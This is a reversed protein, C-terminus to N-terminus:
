NSEQAFHLIIWNFRKLHQELLIEITFVLPFFLRCFCCCFLILNCVLCDTNSEWYSGIMLSLSRKRKDRKERTKSTSKKENTFSIWHMVSRMHGYRCHKTKNNFDNNSCREGLSFVRRHIWLGCECSCVAIVCYWFKMYDFVWSCAARLLSPCFFIANHFGFQPSGYFFSSLLILVRQSKFLIVSCFFSM